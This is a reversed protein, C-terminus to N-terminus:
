RDSCSSPRKAKRKPPVKIPLGSTIYISLYVRPIIHIHIHPAYETHPIECVCICIYLYTNIHKKKNDNNKDNNDYPAYDNNRSRPLLGPNATYIYIHWTYIRMRRIIIHFIIKKVCQVFIRTESRCIGQSNQGSRGSSIFDM